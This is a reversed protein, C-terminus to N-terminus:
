NSTNEDKTITVLGKAVEKAQETAEHIQASVQAKAEKVAYNAMDDYLSSMYKDIVFDIKADFNAFPVYRLSNAIVEDAFGETVKIKITIEKEM